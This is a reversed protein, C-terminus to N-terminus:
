HQTRKASNAELYLLSLNFYGLTKPCFKKSKPFVVSVNDSSVVLIRITNIHISFKKMKTSVVM